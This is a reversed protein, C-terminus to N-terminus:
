RGIAHAESAATLADVEGCTLGCHDVVAQRNQALSGTLRPNDTCIAVPVGADLLTRIPYADLRDLYGLKWNSLPCCEVLIKRAALTRVLVPDQAATLGHGIQTVPLNDIVDWVAGPGCQEGAHAKLKWGRVAAEEYHRRFDTAPRADEVGMLDIGAIAAGSACSREFLEDFVAPELDRALGLVLHAEIGYRRGAESMAAGMARMTAAVDQGHTWAIAPGSNVEAYTIGQAALEGLMAATLAGAMGEGALVEIAPTFGAVFEAWDDFRHGPDTYPNIAPLAPHRAALWEWSIAGAGHVHFEPLFPM